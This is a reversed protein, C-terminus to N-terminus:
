GLLMKIGLAALFLAFFRKLTATPLRHALRAGLPAFAM